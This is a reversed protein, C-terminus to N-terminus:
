YSTEEYQNISNEFPLINFGDPLFGKNEVHELFQKILQKTHDNGELLSLDELADIWDQLDINLENSKM